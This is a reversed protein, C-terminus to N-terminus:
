ARRRRSLGLGALASGILGLGAPEPVALTGSVSVFSGDDFSIQGAYGVSQGTPVVIQAIQRGGAGVPINGPNGPAFGFIGSLHAASESNFGHGNARTGNVANVQSSALMWQTDRDVVGGLAPIVANNDNFVTVLPSGQQSLAGTFELDLAAIPRAGAGTSSLTVVHKILGAGVDAATSALDVAAVARTTALAAGVAALRLISHKM